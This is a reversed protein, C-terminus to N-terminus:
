LMRISIRTCPSHCHLCHRPLKCPSPTFAQPSRSFHQILGPDMAGTGEMYLRALDEEAIVCNPASQMMRSWLRAFAHTRWRSRPVLTPRPFPQAHWTASSIQVPTQLQIALRNGMSVSPASVFPIYASAIQQGIRLFPYENAVAPAVESMERWMQYTFAGSDECDNSSYKGLCGAVNWLDVSEQTGADNIKIDTSYPYSLAQLTCARAMLRLANDSAKNEQFYEATMGMAAGINSLLGELYAPEAKVSPRQVSMTAAPFGMNRGRSVGFYMGHVPSYERKTHKLKSIADQTQKCLRNMASIAPTNFTTLQPNCLENLLRVSTPAPSSFVAIKPLKCSVTLYEFVIANKYSSWTFNDLMRGRYTSEKIQAPGFTSLPILSSGLQYHCEPFLGHDGGARHGIMVAQLVSDFDMTQPVVMHFTKDIATGPEIPVNIIQNPFCKRSSQPHNCPISFQLHFGSWNLRTTRTPEYKFLCKIRFVAVLLGSEQLEHPLISTDVQVGMPQQISYTTTALDLSVEQYKDPNGWTLRGDQVRATKVPAVSDGFMVFPRYSEKTEQSTVHLQHQPLVDTEQVTISWKSGDATAASMRACPNPLEEGLPHEREFESAHRQWNTLNDTTNEHM